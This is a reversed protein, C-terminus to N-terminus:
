EALGSRGRLLLTEFADIFSSVSESTRRGASKQHMRYVIGRGRHLAAVTLRHGPGSEDEAVRKLCVLAWKAIEDLVKTHVQEVRASLSEDDGEGVAERIWGCVIHRFEGAFERRALEASVSGELAPFVSPADGTTPSAESSVLTPGRAETFVGEWSVLRPMPCYGRRPVKGPYDLKSLAEEAAAIESPSNCLLAHRRDEDLQELYDLVADRADLRVKHVAWMTREFLEHVVVENMTKSEM